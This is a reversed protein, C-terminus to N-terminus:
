GRAKIIKLRMNVPDEGDSNRWHGEWKDGLATMVLTPMAAQEIESSAQMQIQLTSGDFGVEALPMEEGTVRNLMAGKLQEGDTKFILDVRHHPITSEDAASDLLHWKGALIVANTQSQNM